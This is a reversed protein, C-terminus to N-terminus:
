SAGLSVALNHELWHAYARPARGLLKAVADTRKFFGAAVKAFAGAMLPSAFFRMM